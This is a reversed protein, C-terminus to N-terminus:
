SAVLWYWAHQQAVDDFFQVEARTITKMVDTMRMQWLTQGVVAILEICRGFRVDLRLEAPVAAFGWGGFDELQLMLRITPYHATARQLDAGMRQLDDLVLRGSLQVAM